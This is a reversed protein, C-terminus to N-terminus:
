RKAARRYADLISYIGLACIFVLSGVFLVLGLILMKLSVIKGLLWLGILISGIVLVLMSVASIFIILLGKFIQGNYLQGLGNFVFSLVAAIGAHNLRVQEM